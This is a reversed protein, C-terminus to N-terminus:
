VKRMSFPQFGISQAYTITGNATLTHGNGSSDAFNGSAENLRWYGAPSDALITSVYSM